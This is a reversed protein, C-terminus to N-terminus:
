KRYRCEAKVLLREGEYLERNKRMKKRRGGEPLIENSSRVFCLKRRIWRLVFVQEGCM